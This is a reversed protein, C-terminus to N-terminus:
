CEMYTHIYTHIYQYQLYAIDRVQKWRGLCQAFESLMSFVLGRKHAVYVRHFTSMSVSTLLFSQSHYSSMFYFHVFSGTPLNACTSYHNCIRSRTWCQPPRPDRKGEYCGCEYNFVLKCVYMCPISIIMCSLINSFLYVYVCMCEYM